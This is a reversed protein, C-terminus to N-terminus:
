QVSAILICHWNAAFVQQQEWHLEIISLVLEQDMTCM